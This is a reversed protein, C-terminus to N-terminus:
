AGTGTSDCGCKYCINKFWASVEYYTETCAGTANYVFAVDTRYSSNIALMYGCPNTSSIPLAPNCPLNGRATNAAGTHDGTIDWVQHVRSAHGKPATQNIANTASTNNAVGYEYDQPSSAGFPTYIYNTNPSTGRNQSGPSAAPAGFTGNFEDGILNLPSVADPCAGPSQYIILSDNPFVINYFTGNVSDRYRFSGGGFNIKTDFGANVTVRYTAMIICTNNFFSPRSNSRIIGGRTKTAGIGMNMQITTDTGAGATSYWGPDLDADSDSFTNFIKGENTRLSLSNPVYGFGLGPSLTDYYAVSDIARHQNAANRKVVLTARIELVDGPDISGGITGDTINVYTKGYDIIASTALSPEFLLTQSFRFWPSNASTTTNNVPLNAGSSSGRSM